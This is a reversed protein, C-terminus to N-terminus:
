IFEELIDTRGKIGAKQYVLPGAKLVNDLEEYLPRTTQYFLGIPIKPGWEQAREFAKVKDHPDYGATEELKYVRQRFYDFTNFKNYTVCPSQVDV